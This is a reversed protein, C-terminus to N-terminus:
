RVTPSGRNTASGRSAAGAPRRVPATRSALWGMLGPAGADLPSTTETSVALAVCHSSIRECVPATTAFVVMLGRRPHITLAPEPPAYQLWLPASFSSVGDPVTRLSPDIGLSAFPTTM